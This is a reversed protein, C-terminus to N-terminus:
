KTQEKIAADLDLTFVPRDSPRKNEPLSIFEYGRLWGCVARTRAIAADKAMESSTHALFFGEFKSEWARRLFKKEFHEELTDAIENDPKPGNLREFEARVAAIRDPTM